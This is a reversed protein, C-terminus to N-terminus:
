CQFVRCIVRYASAFFFQSICLLRHCSPIISIVKTFVAFTRICLLWIQNEIKWWKKKRTMKNIADLIIEKSEGYTNTEDNAWEHTHILKTNQITRAKRHTGAGREIWLQNCSWRHWKCISHLVSLPRWQRPCSAIVIQSPPNDQPLSLRCRQVYCYRHRPSRFCYRRPSRHEYSLHSYLYCHLRCDCSRLALSAHPFRKNM